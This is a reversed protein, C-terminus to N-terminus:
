KKEFRNGRKEILLKELQEQITPMNKYYYAWVSITSKCRVKNFCIECDTFSMSYEAIEKFKLIDSFERQCNRCVYISM